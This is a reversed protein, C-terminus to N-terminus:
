GAARARMRNLARQFIGPDNMARALVIAGQIELVIEEALEQAPDSARGARTLADALAAIWRAFYANVAQGFRDRADGLAFAGVLCVRAGSRFYADVDDFAAAIAAGPDASERLPRFLRTEFWGDIEALVAAAMEEKGGPFFHYLSGKGLGTAASILALSAGAFGHERFVEALAPLTDKRESVSRAM